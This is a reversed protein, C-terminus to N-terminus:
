AAERLAGARVQMPIPPPAEAAPRPATQKARRFIRGAFLIIQELLDPKQSVNEDAPRTNLQMAALVLMASMPNNHDYM